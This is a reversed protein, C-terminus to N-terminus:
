LTVTVKPTDFVGGALGLPSEAGDVSVYALYVGPVVSSVPFAISAASTAAGTIGNDRPAAFSYSRATRTDPAQHEYLFLVVRQTRGVEPTFAVTLSGAALSYSAPVTIVPHLVFPMVNSEVGRHPVAPDGLLLQHVVQAAQVGARLGAVTTLDISLQVDAPNAVAITATGVQM